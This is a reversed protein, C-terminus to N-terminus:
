GPNRRRAAVVHGAHAAIALLGTALHVAVLVDRTTEGTATQLLYGSAATPGLITLVAVGSRRSRRWARQRLRRLVHGRLLMGVGLVFAPAALVHAHLLPGQWPHHLVTFADPDAPWLHELGAHALGSLAVLAFSAHVLAREVLPTTAAAEAAPTSV